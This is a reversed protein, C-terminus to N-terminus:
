HQHKLQAPVSIITDLRENCRKHYKTDRAYYDWKGHKSAYALNYQHGVVEDNLTGGHCKADTHQFSIEQQIIFVHSDGWTDWHAINFTM